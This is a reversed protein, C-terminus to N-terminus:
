QKIFRKVNGDIELLYTGANVNSVPITGNSVKGVSITQGLLNVIKFQTGEAVESVNLIEGKVPNPYINFALVPTGNETTRASSVINVTYDEVQGYSFTECATPIANYKMSVRMRTAGLTATSPITITGSVPTTQSASRTWATEGSDSFDGDQNWDIFVAYAENYKTGTWTPTVSITYSSGRTVNTSVSTFNTYGTGGTSANNITGFQVRGILEDAVSNGQSACYSVSGSLTTVSVTNSNTSANGAADKALVYFSYTTAATLGTAAYSTATTSALFTGNRYVDYGTVAVNDTSATWTLNTSTQSTGSASLSTPASPATTDTTNTLTTVSVTNSNASVNGAADKARVYFTYTTSATLGSATYSATASSGVLSGNRYVDYGTVAVNDTSATWTLNTSTQTTGSAALSAPTSPATADSSGGTITFNANSMDFFIHNTGKVMIRNQTGPTNPITVAQTGDNPTAALLVTPFTNGGDTSLLIDVNACNVGNATTGAVAWTVTQSSGGVYSVATNPASVSFPGATANVTVVMDDSNNAAFSGQNDRVTFRFNLTRAVTPVAEWTWATAGTKVTELRPFMRSTSTTPSYSRFNPGGTKTATPMSNTTTRQNMQEWCYTLAGGNADTGNGTLIFPTGKPITYDAGANATPIANGTVTTTQCTTSKVYNTIQQISVAHFYADSHAQVDTSGTIGAYGMITSGSGPECQAITGENSHSFTHNGGFQHGMEHAVYDIDFNDGQPIGDAPSTYGSGKGLPVSSTPNKCVCGICGANGGGGSAGFLHGIDYNASGIVNTLTTQLQQNWAGGAGTSANAYPDTSASTYIVSDTNSILNMHVGMDIEFVGNVRTMTNNIAALALAKTGGFYATYEGTVSMALRYNRLNGDDANPRLMAAANVEAEASAIVRCDWQNLSAAKDSKKYVTYVSPDTTYPEIFTASKDAAIVMSQLGLPSLSFYVTARPNTVGKGTYSKIEPYRAALGPEMNSFESVRFQDFGGDANPLSVIVGNGRGSFRQPAGSLSQALENTNLALLRPQQISAKNAVVQSESSKVATSWVQRGQQAFSFGSIAVFAISLLRNKM